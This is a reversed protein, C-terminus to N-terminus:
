KIQCIFMSKEAIFGELKDGIAVPGVGAPTGTFLLDGKRLTIYQSIFVILSEIDFIMDETNGIQVVEENKKLSFNINNISEFEDKPILTGVVASHDFAKALEWPLGKQKLTSQLDRATFDIGLGIADYYKHAFKKTVHKGENCIRVVVEVEYHVDKSFDPYYFDKNDKLVATDPKLFIVPNEPVPNNLEKAHDIYNRGVAIIKM